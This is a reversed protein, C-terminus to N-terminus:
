ARRRIIENKLIKWKKLLKKRLFIAKAKQGRLYIYISVPLSFLMLHYITDLLPLLTIDMLFPLFAIKFEAEYFSHLFTFILSFVFSYLATYISFPFIKDELFYIKFRYIALTTFVSCLAYFGVPTSVTCIDLFFGIFFSIWLSFFFTTRSFCFSYFPAFYLVPFIESFPPLAFHYFFALAFFPILSVQKM